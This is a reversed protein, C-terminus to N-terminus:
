RSNQIEIYNGITMRLKIKICITIIFNKLKKQWSMTLENEVKLFNIHTEKIGKTEKKNRQLFKIIVIQILHNIINFM